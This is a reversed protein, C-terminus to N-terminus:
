LGYNTPTDMRDNRSQARKQTDSILREHINVLYHVGM